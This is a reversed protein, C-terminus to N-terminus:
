DVADTAHYGCAHLVFGAALYGVLPPLKITNAAFGFIFAVLILALDM